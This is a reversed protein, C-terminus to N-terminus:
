ERVRLWRASFGLYVPVALLSTWAIRVAEEGIWLPRFPRGGVATVLSALSFSEVAMLVAVTALVIAEARVFLRTSIERALFYVALSSLFFSWSPASTVIERLFAAALAGLLGAPGPLFLGAYVVALFPVDPLLYWPVVGSLLWVCVSVGAFTAGVLALAHGIM